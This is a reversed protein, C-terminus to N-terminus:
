GSWEKEDTEELSTFNKSFRLIKGGTIGWRNLRIDCKLWTNKEKDPHRTLWIGLDAVQEIEGAGKYTETERTLQSVAVVNISLQKSLEQLGLAIRSMKEYISGSEIMNQIFDVYIIDLGYRIKLMKAKLWIAQLTYANDFIWFDKDLYYGFAETIKAEIEDIHKGKLLALPPVGTQNAVLRLLNGMEDAELSFLAIKAHPEINLLRNILNVIMWSKGVKPFAGLIWLHGPIYAEIAKELFSYGIPLGIRKKARNEEITELVRKSVQFIKADKKPKDQISLLKGGLTQLHEESNKGHAKLDQYAEKLIIGLRKLQGNEHVVKADSALAQNTAAEIIQAIDNARIGTKECILTPTIDLNEQFLDLIAQYIKQHKSAEFDQPEIVDIINELSEPYLIVGGLVAVEAELNM